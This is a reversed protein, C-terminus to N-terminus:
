TAEAEVEASRADVLVYSHSGNGTDLLESTLVMDSNAPDALNTWVLRDGKQFGHDGMSRHALQIPLIARDAGFSLMRDMICNAEHSAIVSLRSKSSNNRVKRHQQRRNKKKSSM